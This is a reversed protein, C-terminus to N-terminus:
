GRGSAAALDIGRKKLISGARVAFFALYLFCFVPVWYSAHIGFHDALWGQFPPVVAGGLIMMILFASGQATFKGLGAISMAFICPMGVACCLGGAVFAFVAAQGTSFLGILMLVAGALAFVLLMKSPNENALVFGAALAGVYFLYPLLPGVAIGRLWFALFIVGLGLFPAVVTALLQGNKSFDFASVAGTLRGIMLGGWYLAIFPGIKEAGLGGFEPQKLLEGMNSQITVECGVYCFVALMGLRLQPYALAGLGPEFPEDNTMKPLDLFALLAAALGFVAILIWYIADISGITAGKVAEPSLDGFLLAAVLLPGVVTGLSNGASALNMRHASTEARGLAAVFPFAATQQLSFGLAIVFFSGLIMGFNGAHVSPIMAAAGAISLLLGWIIAKKYGIRNLFDVRAAQSALWLALSGVFYAAYFATDILQSQFQTLRFHAKCFPIFIGNQAAVFGWFFFVLTLLALPGATGSAKASSATRNTENM